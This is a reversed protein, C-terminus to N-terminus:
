LRANRANQPSAREKKSAQKLRVITVFNLARMEIKGIPNETMLM